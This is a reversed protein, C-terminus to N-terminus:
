GGTQNEKYSKDFYTALVLEFDSASNISQFLSSNSFNTSAHAAHTAHKRPHRALTRPMPPM